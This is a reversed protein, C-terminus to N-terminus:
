AARRNRICVAGGGGGEDPLREGPLRDLALVDGTEGPDGTLPETSFPVMRLMDCSLVVLGTDGGGLGGPM